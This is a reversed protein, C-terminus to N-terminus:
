DIRRLLHWNSSRATLYCTQLFGSLLFRGDRSAFTSLCRVWRRLLASACGPSSSSGMIRKSLHIFSFVYPRLLLCPLFLDVLLDISVWGVALFCFRPHDGVLFVMVDHVSRLLLLVLELSRILMCSMPFGGCIFQILISGRFGLSTYRTCSDYLWISFISSPTGRISFLPFHM